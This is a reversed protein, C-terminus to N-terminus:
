TDAGQCFTYDSLSGLHSKYFMLVPPFNDPSVSVFILPKVVVVSNDTERSLASIRSAM